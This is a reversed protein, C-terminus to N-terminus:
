ALEPFFALFADQLYIKYNEVVIVRTAKLLDSWPGKAVWASTKVTPHWCNANACTWRLLALLVKCVRNEAEIYKLVIRRMVGSLIRCSPVFHFLHLCESQPCIQPFPMINRPFTIVSFVLWAKSGQNLSKFTKKWLYLM